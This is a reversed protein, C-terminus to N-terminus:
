VKEDPVNQLAEAYDYSVGVNNYLVGIELKSLESKLKEYDATTASAFDFQITKVEIDACKSKIDAKTEEL